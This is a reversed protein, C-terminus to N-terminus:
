VAARQRRRAVFVVVGATILILAIGGALLRTVTFLGTSRNADPKLTAAGMASQQYARADAVSIASELRTKSADLESMMSVVRDKELQLQKRRTERLEEPHVSGSGAFYNQINEPKLDFNLQELRIKLDAQRNEVDSLEARLKQATEFANDQATAIVACSLLAFVLATLVTNLRM